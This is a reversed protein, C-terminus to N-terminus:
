KWVQSYTNHIPSLIHSMQFTSVLGLGIKESLHFNRDVFDVSFNFDNHKPIYLNKKIYLIYYLLSNIELQEAVWRTM